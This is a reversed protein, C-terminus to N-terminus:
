SRAAAVLTPGPKTDDLTLQVELWWRPRYVAILPTEALPGDATYTISFDTREGTHTNKIQFQSAIVHEYASGGIEATPMALTRTATLEYIRGHYVYAIAPEPSVQHSTQWHHAQAHLLDALATLFGPRTGPLLPIVRTTGGVPQRDALDLVVDVHRFTYDAPAPISAVVSRAEGDAISSHIVNFIRESGQRQLNAEAQGVSEEDSETMLGVLTARDGRIEEDIYGWRNIHRPARDPDSGILLSYGVADMDRRKAVLADGVNDRGIWFLLPRVRASITYHHRQGNASLLPARAAPPDAHPAAQLVTLLAFLTLASAIRSIAFAHSPAAPM